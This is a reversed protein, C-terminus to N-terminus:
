SVFERGTGWGDVNLVKSVYIHDFSLATKIVFSGNRLRFQYPKLTKLAHNIM